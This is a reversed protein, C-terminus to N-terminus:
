IVQRSKMESQTIYRLPSSSKPSMKDNKRQQPTINERDVYALNADENLVLRKETLQQNNFPSIQKTNIVRKPTETTEQIMQYDHSPMAM